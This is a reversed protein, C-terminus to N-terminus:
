ILYSCHKIFLPPGSDPPPGRSGHSQLLALRTPNRELLRHAPKYPLAVWKSTEFEPSVVEVRTPLLLSDSGVVECCAAVTLVPGDLAFAEVEHQCSCKPGVEGTMSCFYVLQGLGSAPVALLIAMLLAMARSLLQLNRITM